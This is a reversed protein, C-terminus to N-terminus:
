NETTETDYMDGGYPDEIIEVKLLHTCIGSIIMGAGSAIMAGIRINAIRKANKDTVKAKVEYDSM